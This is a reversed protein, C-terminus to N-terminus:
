HGPPATAAAAPRPAAAGAPPKTQPMTAGNHCTYCTVHDGTEHEGVGAPFNANIQRTMLIMKRAIEKEPKADSAFDGAVHCETCTVGLSARFLGMAPRIEEPKLIKLNKPAPHGGAAPAPAPTTASPAAPAPAPPDQAVAALPLAALCCLLLSRMPRIYGLIESKRYSEKYKNTIWVSFRTSIM